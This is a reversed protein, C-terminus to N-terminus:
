KLCYGPHEHQLPIDSRRCVAPERALLAPRNARRQRHRGEPHQQPPPHRQPPHPPAHPNRPRLLPRPLRHRLQRHRRPQHTPHRPPLHLQLRQRRLQWLHFHWQKMLNQQYTTLFPFTGTSVLLMPKGFILLPVRSLVAATSILISCRSICISVMRTSSKKSM